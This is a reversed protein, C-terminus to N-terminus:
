NELRALKKKQPSLNNVLFEINNELDTIKKRQEESNELIIVLDKQYMENKYQETKLRKKTDQLEDELNNITDKLTDILKKNFM